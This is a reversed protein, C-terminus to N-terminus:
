GLFLIFFCLIACFSFSASGLVTIFEKLKITFSIIHRKENIYFMKLQIISFLYQLVIIKKLNFDTYILPLVVFVVM